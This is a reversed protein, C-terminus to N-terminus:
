PGGRDNLGLWGIRWFLALLGLAILASLIWFAAYGHIWDLEPMGRHFNMGYVGALFTLPIFISTLVTLVRMVENTRNAVSSLYVDMFSATLERYSETVDVIQMAHDAADRLYLRVDESFAEHPNRLLASLMDRLPWAARRLTTLDRRISYIRGLAARTPSAIVREELDELEDGYRELLPFYGDVVADIVASGLFDAGLSRIPAVNERIRRRVPDLCDAPNEQITIVTNRTIFLNLQEWEVQDDIITAMRLICFLTDGYAEAKPRQGTNMVDAVALAHLGFRDRLHQVVSGDGLGQVDIWNVRDPDFFEHLRDIADLRRETCGAQDFTILRIIPSQAGPAAEFAGPSAGASTFRRRFIRTPSM